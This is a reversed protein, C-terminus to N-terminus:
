IMGIQLCLAFFYFLTFEITTPSQVDNKQVWCCYFRSLNSHINKYYSM